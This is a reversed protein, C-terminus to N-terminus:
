VSTKTLELKELEDLLIEYERQLLFHEQVHRARMEFIRQGLENINDQLYQENPPQNLNTM